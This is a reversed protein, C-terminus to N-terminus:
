KGYFNDFYLQNYIVEIRVRRKAGIKAILRDVRIWSRM